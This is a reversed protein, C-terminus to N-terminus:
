NPSYLDSVTVAAQEVVFGEAYRSRCQVGRVRMLELFTEGDFRGGQKESPYCNKLVEGKRLAVETPVPLYLTPTPPESHGKLVEYSLVLRDRFQTSVLQAVVQHDRSNTGRQPAFVLDPRCSDRFAAVRQTVREAHRALMGSRLDVVTLRVGSSPCMAAFANREEIERVTGGGTLVLGHVVVDPYTRSIQLLAAGTGIAVDGCHAAIVAVSNLPETPSGRM